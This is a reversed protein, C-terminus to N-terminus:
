SITLTMLTNEFVGENGELKEGLKHRTEPRAPAFGQREYIRRAAHLNGNTWLIVKRYGVNRAFKICEEVLRTGTGFGRAEPEVLLLRLQGISESHKVLFVCGVNEGEKEAIWCRERKPDYNEVFKAVIGAVVGEFREDWGYERAYLAGHRHVVWGMDGPRPARLVVSPESMPKANLLEEIMQMSRILRGRNYASMGKLMKANVEKSRGDLEAFAAQGKKTLSLIDERRDADSTHRVVLAIKEFRQILRSLYGADLDLDRGIGTATPNNRHALEYLVRAETLSFATNLFGRRLV